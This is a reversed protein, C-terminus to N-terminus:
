VSSDITRVFKRTRTVRNAHVNRARNRGHLGPAENHKFFLVNFKEKPWFLAPVEDSPLVFFKKVALLGNALYTWRFFQKLPLKVEPIIKQFSIKNWTINLPLDFVKLYNSWVKEIILLVWYKTRFQFVHAYWPKLFTLRGSFKAYTRFSHNEFMNHFKCTRM